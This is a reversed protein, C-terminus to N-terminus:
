FGFHVKDDKLHKELKTYITHLNFNSEEFTQSFASQFYVFLIEM